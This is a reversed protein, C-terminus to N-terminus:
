DLYRRPRGRRAPRPCHGELRDGRASPHPRNPSRVHDLWPCSQVTRGAAVDHAAVESEGLTPDAGWIELQQYIPEERRPQGEWDAAPQNPDPERQHQDKSISGGKTTVNDTMRRGGGSRERRLQAPRPGTRHAERRAPRVGPQARHRALRTPQSRRRHRRHRRGHVPRARPWAEDTYRLQLASPTRRDRGPTRAHTSANTGAASRMRHLGAGSMVGAIPSPHSRDPVHRPPRRPRHEDAHTWVDGPNKGLPHGVLGRAKMAHLGVNSGALPGAWKPRRGHDARRAEAASGGRLRSRHPVRIADLDFYYHQSRVALYVVEYTCSLRDRVSTPMPNTKAWVVKNRIVWGDEIMALALREPALLLSKPRAGDREHHSYTDGLNLWLSGTPKLVRAVGQMVVRLEDVWADVNAELGIQGRQGYNRLRFYPPSTIVCDVSSPPLKPLRDRVDGVLLRNRMERM